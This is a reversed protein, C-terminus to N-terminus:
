FEGKYYSPLLLMHTHWDSRRPRAPRFVYSSKWGTSYIIIVPHDKMRVLNRRFLNFVSIIASKINDVPLPRVKVYGVSENSRQRWRRLVRLLGFWGGFAAYSLAHRWFIFFQPIQSNLFKPNRFGPIRLNRFESYAIRNKKHTLNFYQM